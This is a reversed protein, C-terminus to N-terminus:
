LLIDYPGRNLLESFAAAPVPPSFLFGQIQMEQCNQQRRLFDLQAHSEVGEAVLELNLAGALSIIAMAIAMSEENDPLDKIFSRDIKLTDIPMKRLYQLSSYGTGFDDLALRVGIEKLELLQQIAAHENGMVVSETVELELNAASFGTEDLIAVIEAVLGEQMFQRASLNVSVSLDKKQRLWRRTDLCATRLVYAGIPVILGTEEALPIFDLPSILQGDKKQWRVLAEMGVIDGSAVSVKPQYYVRFEDRDLARRLSNELSLRHIVGANMSKTFLQYKNKGENKARYMALEGNKLLTEADLGDDPFYTIGVSATVFTEYSTLNFPAIFQQLIKEAMVVADQVDDCQELLIAFDDGGLRAVTSDAAVCAKLREAVQQLLLDGAMHGLSDNIHKFNDLDLCLVAVRHTFHQAHGIAVKLRDLLLSRNPLSTLVDHYAQFHIQDEYSRIESLDHFVAVHHSPQGYEDLIATITLHEPYVEGNKRRNWIEGEWRGTARLTSWMAQYFAQDHRDSKLISPRNGIAEEPSYGTIHTFAKNVSQILGDADTITIGEISSEFVRAALTLQKESQRHLTVDQVTGFMRVPVGGANYEVEGEECVERQIGHNNIIRHYVKYPERSTLSHQVADQVRQRDEPHIHEIFTEYSAPTQERDMEFIKYVGDSWSLLNEVLLWEWYGLRAIEQAKILNAESSLLRDEAEQRDILLALTGAVTKLFSRQRDDCPRASEGYLMLVGLVKDLHVIPVICHSQEERVGHRYQYERPLSPACIIEKDRAAMGCLCEGFRITRCHALVSADMNKQASLILTEAETKSVLFVGGRPVVQLWSLSVIVDLAHALQEELSSDQFGIRLLQAIVSEQQRHQQLEEEAKKYLTIDRGLVVLGKRSGDEHFLPIKHVELVKHGGGPLLICKESQTPFSGQWTDEDSAECGLFAERYFPSFAALESDKKGVYDVGLLQFLELDARNAELWKGTGDKFCVIDPMADLLTRLLEEGSLSINGIKTSSSPSPM